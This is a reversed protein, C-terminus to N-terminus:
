LFALGKSRGLDNKWTICRYCAVACQCSEKYSGNLIDRRLKSRVRNVLATFPAKRPFSLNM